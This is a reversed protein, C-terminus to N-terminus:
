EEIITPVIFLGARSKFSGALAADRSLGPQAADDAYINTLPVAHPMAEFASVDLDQIDNFHAILANLEIQFAQLEEETLELRALRATHRVEDLTMSM